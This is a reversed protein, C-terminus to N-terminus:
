KKNAKIYKVLKQKEPYDPRIALFREYEAAALDKRGAANYLAALRFHADAMGVPDLRIAENFHVVARSGKKGQLFAEGLYYQGAPFQPNLEVVRRLSAIAEENRKLSLQLKGLNLWAMVYSPRVLLAQQYSKEAETLKGQRFLMTGLEEWAEFDKPDSAVIERLMQVASAYNKSGSAKLAKGFKAANESGRVYLETSMEPDFKKTKQGAPDPRWELELDRRIDTSMKEQLLLNIRAVENGNNAVRLDYEGNHVNLFRYRGNAPVILRDLVQGSLSCLEITYSLPIPGTIKTEDIKLDGFLTHSQFSLASAACVALTLIILFSIMVFRMMTPINARFHPFGMM